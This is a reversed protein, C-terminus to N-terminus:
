QVPKLNAEAVYGLKTGDKAILAWGHETKVLTVLAYPGLQQVVPGTQGPTAFVKGGDPLVHTPKTSIIIEDGPAPALSPLQRVLPFDSGQLRMQPYQRVHWQRETIEPVVGDVYGALETLEVLGDGDKDGRALAELVAYTFIGHGRFGELAPQDGMAATLVSRGTAQILRGVAAMQELGGRTNFAIKTDGVLTGSECTDFMLISKRAPIRAFWEQWKDQGIAREAISAETDYRFDQPLYYYRGDRTAGHGAAFFVFVDRPRIRKALDTFVNELNAVRVDKDLVPTIIVDSYLGHKNAAEGFAATLSTADAVALELQLAGMEYANVGLALVHLQPPATPRTGTWTIKTQAPMSSVLGAVNYAVVEIVNEGPDLAIQQTRTIEHLASGEGTERTVVAVTVGNVRWEVRGIGGGADDVKASVAVLDSASSNDGWKPSTILVSPAAGSALVKTLDLQAAAEKVKGNPDGALKEKVLDPRYLAQWFQSIDYAANERVVAILQGAAPSSANFFGEPTLALWEGDQSVIFTAILEGTEGLWVRTTTDLSGTLLRGGDPSFTVSAVWGSHGDLRRVLTGTAADWLRATNDHSGTLVQQGDPSFAVSSVWGTHGEFTRVLTGTAADWLRATEGNSGTLVQHGNPSFAVSGVGSPEEFSRVITGTAADWLKATNDDSGTLVQRGDPSFAVSRVEGSHGVLSRVLTGTAADWLTGADNSEGTLVQRGDPSFAISNVRGFHGEFSSALTGTAADWLRATNDNSGTLVQRSSPSFAVASIESRGKFSRIPTGTAADWLRATKDRSGTLWHGGDPSFAVSTVGESRGRFSRVLTGTAADWLMAASDRGSTLVQRGDPSFCASEILSFPAVISRVLAGTAADWLRTADDARTLVQRGDPSFAVSNVGESHEKFSRVLKGTAADWLKAGGRTDGTLIQRGEPSFAVSIVFGSHGEFSRVLTGTGADWLRATREFSGTLIHRGNPSFAVSNVGESHGEFSRVLMGTGADWLRATNDYSGTLVQHGDPSFAVSAVQDSHGEFNRVLTGTGADWLRATNDYSGTLVQHGDPSFAVSNVPGFNGVFNRVLTATTADWLRATGDYSGTLVQHGDPSFAVSTIENSHGIQPVIEITSPPRAETASALTTTAVLLTSIIASAFRRRILVPL